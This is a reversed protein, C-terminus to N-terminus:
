LKQNLKLSYQKPDFGLLQVTLGDLCVIEVGDPLLRCIFSQAFGVYRRHSLCAHTVPIAQNHIVLCAANSESRLAMVKRYIRHSDHWETLVSDEPFRRAVYTAKAEPNPMPQINQHMFDQVFTGFSKDLLQMLSERLKQVSTGQRVSTMKQWYIEGADITRTM